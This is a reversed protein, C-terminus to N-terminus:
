SQRVSSSTFAHSEDFSTYRKPVGSLGQQRLLGTMIPRAQCNWSGSQSSTAFCSISSEPTPFIMFWISRETQSFNLHLTRDSCGELSLTHIFFTQSHIVLSVRPM